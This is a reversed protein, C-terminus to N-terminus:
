EHAEGTRDALASPLGSPLYQNISTMHADWSYSALVCDRGRRGLASAQADDALLKDVATVYDSSESAAILHVGSRADIASVCESAAVVPRAM